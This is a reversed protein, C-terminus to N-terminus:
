RKRRRAPSPLRQASVDSVSRARIGTMRTPVDNRIDNRPHPM